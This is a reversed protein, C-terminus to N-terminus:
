NPSDEYFRSPNYGIGSRLTCRFVPKLPLLLGFSHLLEPRMIMQLLFCGPGVNHARPTAARFRSPVLIDQTSSRALPVSREERWRRSIYFGPALAKRSAGPDAM